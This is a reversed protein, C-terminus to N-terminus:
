PDDAIPDHAELPSGDHWLTAGGGDVDLRADYGRRGLLTCAARAALDARLSERVNLLRLSRHIARRLDRWARSGLPRPAGGELRADSPNAPGTEPTRGATRALRRVVPLARALEIAEHGLEVGRVAGRELDAWGREPAVRVNWVRRQWWSPRVLSLRARFPDCRGLFVDLTRPVGLARARARLGESTLGHRAVIAALDPYDRPKLQWDDSGWGRNIALGVVVADHPELLRVVTGQWDVAVSAAWAAETVRTQMAAFPLRNHTNHALRRHLDLVVDLEPHRFQALEHGRYGASRAARAHDPEGLRWVLRWGQAQAVTCAAEIREPRVVLDVDHYPREGPSPYVFEALHFGKFVLAEVEAARWAAVLRGVAQRVALHRATVRMFDAQLSAREPHDPARVYALGSLGAVRLTALDPPPAPVGTLFRTLAGGGSAVSPTESAVRANDGWPTRRAACPVM